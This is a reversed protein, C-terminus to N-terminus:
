KTARPKAGTKTSAVIRDAEGKLSMCPTLISEAIEGPADGGM